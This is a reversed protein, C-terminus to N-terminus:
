HQDGSTCAGLTPFGDERQGKFLAGGLAWWFSPHLERGLWFREGRTLRGLPDLGPWSQDPGQSPPLFESGAERLRM